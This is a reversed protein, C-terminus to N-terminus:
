SFYGLSRCGRRTPKTDEKGDCAKGRDVAKPARHVTFPQHIWPALLSCEREEM